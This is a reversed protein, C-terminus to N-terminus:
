AKRRCFCHRLKVPGRSSLHESIYMSDWISVNWVIGCAAKGPFPHRQSPLAPHVKSLPVGQFYRRQEARSQEARREEWGMGALRPRM